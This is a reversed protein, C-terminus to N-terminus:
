KLLLAFQVVEELGMVEGKRWGEALAEPEKRARLAALRQEYIVRDAMDLTAGLANLRTKTAAFLVATKVATEGL